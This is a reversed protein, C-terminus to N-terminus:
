SGPVLGLKYLSLIFKLIPNKELDNSKILDKYQTSEGRKLTMVFYLLYGNENWSSSNTFDTSHESECKKSDFKFLQRTYMSHLLDKSQRFARWNWSSRLESKLWKILVPVWAM